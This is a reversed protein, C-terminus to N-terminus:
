YIYKRARLEREIEKNLVRSFTSAHFSNRENLRRENELFKKGLPSELFDCIQGLEELTYAAAIEEVFRDVVWDPSARTEVEQWFAAPVRPFNLKYPATASQILGTMTRDIGIADMFRYTAQRLPDDGAPVPPRPPPPPPPAVPAEPTPPLDPAAVPDADRLSACGGGLLAFALFLASLWRQMPEGVQGM